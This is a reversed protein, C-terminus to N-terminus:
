KGNSNALADSSSFAFAGLQQSLSELKVRVLEHGSGHTVALVKRSRDLYEKCPGFEDLLLALKGMKLLMAGRNVDYEPYFKDYAVMIDRGVDFAEEYEEMELAQDFAPELVQCFLADHPHFTTKMARYFDLCQDKPDEQKFKNELVKERFDKSLKNYISEDADPM